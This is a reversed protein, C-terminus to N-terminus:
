HKQETVANIHAIEVDDFDFQQLILDDLLDQSEKGSIIDAVLSEIQLQTERNVNLIPIMEVYQNSLRFGSEGYEHVNKKIWYYTVKSNLIGLLFKGYSGFNSIYAMSDLVYVGSQTLCFMNFKTIRQWAIIQKNFDDMYACSRLNYATDGKDIRNHLQNIYKDFYSKLSQMRDVNIRNVQIGNENLYGNHTLIIYSRSWVYSFRKIDRGRLIPRILNDTEIREADSLCENLISNRTEENISFAENFGTLIGRNMRIDNWSGLPIGRSEIKRKISLELENLIIWPSNAAFRINECNHKVYDSMNTISQNKTLTIAKTPASYPAKALLIINTDVTASEFVGSGLDILLLPFTHRIFYDRLSAGYEARMWKNSTIFCLSGGEKLNKIGMEYFLSYIDGRPEYTHYQYVSKSAGYLEKAVDKIKELHIYPPNGIIIDFGTTNFMTFSDFFEATEDSFPNWSGLQLSRKSTFQSAANLRSLHQSFEVKLENKRTYDHTGFFENRIKQIEEECDISDFFDLPISTERRLPILSNACVFNFDLNPLPEVSHNQDVILSLWARLRSIEVAMPEIDSGFINRKIISLKTLYPDFREKFTASRHKQIHPDFVSNLREYTREALLLLGIPFAGSGCAPDLVKLENLAEIVRERVSDTRTGWLDFAGTSKRNLFDADNLDMLLDVGDNDKLNNLYNKLYRKLSEKCMFNVVERPTYFAGKNKRESAASATESVITALLNEFVRGLMEPDIAIQEYEPTSEDTTFNFRNFHSYLTQFWHEPFLVLSDPWDNAHPDFLGGNLYPTELDTSKRRDVPTNLTRFFLTKLRNEYYDTASMGDCIFYQGTASVINKKKLFWIFLLRGILRSSFLKASDSIGIHSVGQPVNRTIHQCLVFFHDSVGNYFDKNVEKLEFTNWLVEQISRQPELPINSDVTIGPINACNKISRLKDIQTNTLRESLELVRLNGRKSIIMLFSNDKQCLFFDIGIRYEPLMTLDNDGWNLSLQTTASIRAKSSSDTLQYFKSEIPYKTGTYHNLAVRASGLYPHKEFWSEMKQNRFQTNSFASDLTQQISPLENNPIGILEMIENSLRIALELSERKSTNKHLRKIIEDMKDICKESKVIESNTQM